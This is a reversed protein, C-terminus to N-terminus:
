QEGNRLLEIRMELRPEENMNLLVVTARGVATRGVIEGGMYAFHEQWTQTRPNFIPVLTGTEPDIASLNPGKHLNCYPCALALNEAEDGGHHQKARVHEVHFTFYPAAAQPLRCYECRHGARHRVLERTTADM